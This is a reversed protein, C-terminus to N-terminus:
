QGKLILDLRNLYGQPLFKMEKKYPEYDPTTSLYGRVYADVGGNADVMKKGYQSILKSELEKTFAGYKPNNHMSHSLIDLKIADYRNEPKIQDPDIYLRHKDPNDLKLSDNGVKYDTEGKNQYELSFKNKSLIDKMKGSADQVLFDDPKSFTKLAPYDNFIKSVYDKYNNQPPAVARKAILPNNVPPISDNGMARYPPRFSMGGGGDMPTNFIPQNINMGSLLGIAM